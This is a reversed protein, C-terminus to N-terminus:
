NNFLSLPFAIDLRESRTKRIEKLHDFDNNHSLIERIKYRKMFVISLIDTLSWQPVSSM